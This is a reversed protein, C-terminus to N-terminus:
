VKSMNEGYDSSTCRSKMYDKDLYKDCKWGLVALFSIFKNLLWMRITTGTVKAGAPTISGEASNQKKKLYKVWTNLSLPKVTEALCVLVLVLASHLCHLNLHSPKTHAMEDPDASNAM